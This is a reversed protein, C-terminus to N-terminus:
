TIAGQDREAAWGPPERSVSGLSLGAPLSLTVGTVPVQRENAASFTLFVPKGTGIMTPNIEEHAAAPGAGAMLAAVVATFAALVRKM